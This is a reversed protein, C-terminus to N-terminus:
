AATATLLVMGTYGSRVEEKVIGIPRTAVNGAVKKFTAQLSDESLTMIPSRVGDLEYSASNVLFAAVLTGSPRVSKAFCACAEDFESQINTVAEACFFMTAADWTRRPLDYISGQHPETKRRLEPMPNDPLEPKAWARRAVAWFHQWQPRMTDKALENNLWDINPRAYDWATLKRARPLAAFLPYLNPGTGVDVTELNGSPQAERLAQCTLTLVLDDDPHPEDYYHALYTEPDFQSEADQAMDIVALQFNAV